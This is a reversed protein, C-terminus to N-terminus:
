AGTFNWLTLFCFRHSTYSVIKVAYTYKTPEISKSAMYIEGFGGIGISDGLVWSVNQIDTVIEGKTFKEPMQYGKKAGRAAKKVPVAM